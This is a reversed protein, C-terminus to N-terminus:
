FFSATEWSMVKSGTSGSYDLVEGSDRLKALGQCPPSTGQACISVCNEGSLFCM